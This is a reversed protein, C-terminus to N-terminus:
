CSKAVTKTVLHQVLAIMIASAMWIDGQEIVAIHPCDLGTPVLLGSLSKIDEGFRMWSIM